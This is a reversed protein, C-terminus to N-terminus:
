KRPARVEPFERHFRSWYDGVVSKMERRL